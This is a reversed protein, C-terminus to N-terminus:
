NDPSTVDRHRITGTDHIEFRLANIVGGALLGLALVYFWLLAVLVFSVIRGFEGVTSINVLYIPFAINVLGAVVTMFLAGPWVGRWPLHGKPVAWYILCLTLFTIALGGAILLLNALWDITDLGLPLDDASSVVLSELAPVTVSAALFFAVVVLMILSFRKQEIWGRCDVHYIRCFATDMAGWFSAGIWLGAVIAVIGIETSSTRLQDLSSTLTGQETSPFLEQLDRLISAQVDASQLLQGAIFLLLLTFPFLALMLNYAVMAAMGTVNEEYARRWFAALGGRARATL